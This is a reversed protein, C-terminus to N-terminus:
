GEENGPDAALAAEVARGLESILFEMEEALRAVYVEMAQVRTEVDAGEGLAFRGCSLVWKRGDM